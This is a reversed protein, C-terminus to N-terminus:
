ASLRCIEVFDPFREPANARVARPCARDNLPNTLQDLAERCSSAISIFSAMRSTISVVRLSAAFVPPRRPPRAGIAQRAPLATPCKPAGRRGPRRGRRSRRRHCAPPPRPTLFCRSSTFPMRGASATATWRRSAKRLPEDSGGILISICASICRIFALNTSRM